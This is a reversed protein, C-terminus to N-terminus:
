KIGLLKILDKYLKESNVVRINLKTFYSNINKIDRRLLEPAIPNKKTTGHSFDIFVPGNKFLINYVSLDGHILGVKSLKKLDKIVLKYVEEPNKLRVDIMRPSPLGNEGIFSMILTNQSCAISEPCSVGGRSAIQLNKYERRCWTYIFARRTKPIKGFRPDGLLYKSIRKFDMVQTRYVKIAIWEKEQTLGSFVVSEKGEKILSEIQIQKKSLLRYL